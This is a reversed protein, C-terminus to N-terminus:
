TPNKQNEFCVSEGFRSVPTQVVSFRQLFQRDAYAKLLGLGHGAVSWRGIRGLARGDALALAHWGPVISQHKVLPKGALSLCLNRTLLSPASAHFGYCSRSAQVKPAQSVLEGVAFVHSHSTSQLTPSTCIFGKADLALDSGSLWLAPRPEVAIVALDCALRLNHSLQMQDSSISLCHGHFLTIGGQVLLKKARRQLSLPHEALLCEGGTVLAVRVRRGLRKQFALSLEFAQAGAGVVVLSLAKRTASRLHAAVLAEWSELFQDISRVFLAHAHAGDIADRDAIGNAAISLTDYALDQGNTLSLRRYQSDLVLVDSEILTAGALKVWPLLPISIEDVTHLGAVCHSLLRSHVHRARSCVLTVHTQTAPAKILDQLVQLHEASSGLLVLKKM